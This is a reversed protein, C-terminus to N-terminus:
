GAAKQAKDEAKWGAEWEAKRDATEPTRFEPPLARLALGKRRAERGAVFTESEPPQEEAAPAQEAPKASGAAPSTAAPAADGDKAQKQQEAAPADDGEDSEGEDAGARDDLPNAVKQHNSGTKRPDFLEEVSKEGSKLSQYIGILTPMHELTIEEEGKVDLLGFVQEPKVGFAALMKFANARREVLTKVDGRVAAEAGEYAKRWVARPVGALIANRRAISCAANGTVIIMDDNFLRGSRDVIRRRVTAKQATNTELDHFLGEAEVYKEARNVESVRATVRCNGWQGAVIEALRISPGVIPKGGRPLAYMCEEAAQQDLTALSLINDVVKKLSRPFRHATAIQQDFEVRAIETTMATSGEMPVLGGSVEVIEGDETIRETKQM